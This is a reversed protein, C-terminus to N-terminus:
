DTIIKGSGEANIIRSGNQLVQFMQGEPVDTAELGKSTIKLPFPAAYIRKGDSVVSLSDIKGALAARLSILSCPNVKWSSRKQRRIEFRAPICGTNDDGGNEDSYQIAEATRCIGLAIKDWDFEKDYKSLLHICRLFRNSIYQLTKTRPLFYRAPFHLPVVPQLASEPM